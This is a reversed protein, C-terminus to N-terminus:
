AVAARVAGAHRRLDGLATRLRTLEEDTGALREALAALEQARSGTDCSGILAAVEAIRKEIRRQEAELSLAQAYGDTLTHELRPLDGRGAGDRLSAIRDVLATTDQMTADHM